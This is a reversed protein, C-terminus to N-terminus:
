AAQAVYFAIDETVGISWPDYLRAIRDYPTVGSHKWADRAVAIRKEKKVRGRHAVPAGRLAARQCRPRM